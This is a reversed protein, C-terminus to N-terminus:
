RSRRMILRPARTLGFAAILAYQWQVVKLFFTVGDDDRPINM